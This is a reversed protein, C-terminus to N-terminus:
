WIGWIQRTPTQTPTPPHQQQQPKPAASPIFCRTACITMSICTAIGKLDDDPTGLLFQRQLGEHRVDLFLNTTLPLRCSTVEVFLFDTPSDVGRQGTFTLAQSILPPVKMFVKHCPSGKRLGTIPLKSTKKTVFKGFVFLHTTPSKAHHRWWISVNKANSARQAPFEGTVPSNGECLGTVRLKSTKNSRRRFIRMLLCDHPQHNSVDDRENHPCQLPVGDHTIVGYM